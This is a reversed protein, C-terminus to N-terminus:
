ATGGYELRRPKITEMLGPVPCASTISVVHEAVLVAFPAGVAMGVVGVDTGDLDTTWM